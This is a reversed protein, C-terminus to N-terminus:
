QIKGKKIPLVSFQEKRSPIFDSLEYGWNNFIAVHSISSTKPLSTIEDYYIIKRPYLSFTCWAKNGIRKYGLKNEKIIKQPPFLIVSSDPTKSKIINLFSVDPNEKLGFKQDITVDSFNDIIELNLPIMNNWVWNYGPVYNNLLYFIIILWILVSFNKTFPFLHKDQISTKPTSNNDLNKDSEELKERITTIWFKSHFSYKNYKLTLLNNNQM